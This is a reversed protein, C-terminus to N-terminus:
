EPRAGSRAPNPQAAKIASDFAAKIDKAAKADKAFGAEIRAVIQAADRLIAIDKASLGTMHNMGADAEVGLTLLASKIQALHRKRNSIPKGGDHRAHFKESETLM